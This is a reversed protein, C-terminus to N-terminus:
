FEIGKRAKVGAVYYHRVDKMETVLDAIRLLKAPAKRGTLVIEVHGPRNKVLSVVNYVPILRHACAGCLEDLIVVDHKGAQIIKGAVALGKAALTCEM